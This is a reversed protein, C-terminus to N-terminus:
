KLLESEIGIINCELIIGEKTKLRHLIPKVEKIEDTTFYGEVPEDSFYELSLNGDELCKIEFKVFEHLKKLASRKIRDQNTM